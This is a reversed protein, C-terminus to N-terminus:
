DPKKKARPHTGDYVNALHQYDLHTYIQTTNIDAHGLLEQIARLDGSSELLHSAFSHRLKHPHLNQELGQKKRWHELRLQVSRATLRTGRQSIFLAEEEPYKLLESRHLQWKELAQVALRGVPVIRQINGKGSLRISPLHNLDSLNLRTLESLRLGSSYFLEIIAKDRIALVTDDPMTLLQSITDVGLTEPLRKGQKPPSIDVAPNTKILGRHLLHQMFQRISAVRRQLTKRNLGQRHQQAIFDRIHQADISALDTLAYKEAWATFQELDRRYADHTHQSYHKEYLLYDLFTQRDSQWLM